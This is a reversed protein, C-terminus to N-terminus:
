WKDKDVKYWGIVPDFLWMEKIFKKFNRMMPPFPLYKVSEEGDLIICPTGDTHMIIKVESHEEEKKMM